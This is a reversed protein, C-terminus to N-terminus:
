KQLNFLFQKTNKWNSLFEETQQPLKYYIAYIADDIESTKCARKLNQNLHKLTRYVLRTFNNEQLYQQTLAKEQNLTLYSM